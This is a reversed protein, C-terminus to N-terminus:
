ISIDDTVPVEGYWNNIESMYPFLSDNIPENEPATGGTCNKEIGSFYSVAGITFIFIISEPFQIWDISLVQKILGGQLFSWDIELCM